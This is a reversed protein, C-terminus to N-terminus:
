LAQDPFLLAPDIFATSYLYMESKTVHAVVLQNTIKAAVFGFTLIYLCLHREFLQVAPKKYIMAALATLSGIHLFPSIVSTEALTSGKKALELKCLLIHNRGCYLSSPTNEGSHETKSDSM